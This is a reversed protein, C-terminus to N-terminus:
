SNKWFNWYNGVRNHVIWKLRINSCVPQDPAAQGHNERWIEKQGQAGTRPDTSCRNRWRSPRLLCLIPPTPASPGGWQSRGGSTPNRPLPREHVGGHPWWRQGSILHFRLSVFAMFRFKAAACCGPRVKWLKSGLFQGHVSALYM